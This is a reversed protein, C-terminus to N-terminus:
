PGTYNTALLAGLGLNALCLGLAVASCIVAAKAIGGNTAEDEVVLRRGTRGQLVGVVGTPVAVLLYLLPIWCTALAVIGLVLGAVAHGNRPAVPRSGPLPGAPRASNEPRSM